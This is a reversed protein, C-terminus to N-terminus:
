HKYADESDRSKKLKGYIEKALKVNEKTIAESSYRAVIYVERLESLLKQDYQSMAFSEISESTDSPRIILGRSKANLLFKKYYHRVKERPTRPALARLFAPRSAESAEISSKIYIDGSPRSRGAALRRFILFALLLFAIIGLATFLHVLFDSKVTDNNLSSKMFDPISSEQAKTEQTVSGFKIFSFLMIILWM